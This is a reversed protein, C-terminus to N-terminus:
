GIELAFSATEHYDYNSLRGSGNFHKGYVRLTVSFTCKTLVVTSGDSLTKTLMAEFSADGSAVPGGTEGVDTHNNGGSPAPGLTGTNGNLGRQWTIGYSLMFSNDDGNGAHEVGNVHYARFGISFKSDGPGKMFQCEDTNPTLGKRLDVIDGGVPTNDVWFVHAADAFPVPDTDSASVWRRFQFNQATGPGPAGNPKIRNGMKDFVEILLLYKGDPSRVPTNWVQHYQGSLYLHDPSSWYPVKFLNNETGVHYPGLSEPATVWDGPVQVLRTWSVPNDLVIPAGVPAGADNVEVVKLRYFEVIDELEPSFWLRIGLSGAWPCGTAYSSHYTGDDPDLPGVQSVGTQTPFNFHFTGYSGIHELMVFPLDDGPPPDGPGDACVRARPDYTRINAPDGSSFYQHAAVGDYVVTMVSNILQKVKYAYTTFCPGAPHPLRVRRYCFDFEGGPQIPVEGVKRMACHCFLPYLYRHELVYARAADVTMTRLALYDRHLNEPPVATLDLPTKRRQISRVKSRLLQATFPAPDPGPIPGPIPDPIPIPLIDLIERLRELLTPIPIFHCCCEREYIEVVGDCLPQCNFPFIIHPQLDATIPKIRAAQALEVMPTFRVDDLVQWFWPRCKRVTGSVCIYQFFFRSWIEPAFVIGQNRWFEAKEAVRYRIVSEKPLTKFDEVDPGLAISGADTLDAKLVNGEQRGLKKVPRGSRDVEYAAIRPAQEDGKLDVFTLPLDTLKERRSM